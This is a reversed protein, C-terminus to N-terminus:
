KDFHERSITAGPEGVFELLEKAAARGEESSKLDALEDAHHGGNRRASLFFRVGTSHEFAMEPKPPSLCQLGGRGCLKPLRAKIPGLWGIGMRLGPDSIAAAERAARGASDLASQLKQELVSVSRSNKEAQTCLIACSGHALTCAV